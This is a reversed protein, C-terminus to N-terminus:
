CTTKTPLTQKSLHIGKMAASIWDFAERTTLGCALQRVGGSENVVEEINTCGYCRAAHINGINWTRDTYAETPRNLMENLSYLSADVNTKTIRNAM